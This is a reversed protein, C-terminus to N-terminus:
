KRFEEKELSFNPTHILILETLSKSKNKYSFWNNKEVLLLDGSNLKFEKDNVIFHVTGSKGYYYKDSKKSRSKTHGRGSPVVIVAFSSSVDLGSTYDFVVLDNFNIPEVSDKQIKKLGKEKENSRL